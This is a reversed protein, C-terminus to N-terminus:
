RFRIAQEFIRAKTSTTYLVHFIPQLYDLPKYRFFTRLLPQFHVYRGGFHCLPECAPFMNTTAADFSPSLSLSPHHSSVSVSTPLCTSNGTTLQSHASLKTTNLPWGVVLCGRPRTVLVHCGACSRTVVRLDGM